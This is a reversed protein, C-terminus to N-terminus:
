INCVQTLLEAKYGYASRGGHLPRFILPDTRVTLEKDIFPKLNTARLFPPLRHAGDLEKGGGGSKEHMGISRFTGRQSLVREGNNLVACPIITNGIKLDGDHTAKLIDTM